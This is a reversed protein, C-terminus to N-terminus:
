RGQMEIAVDVTIKGAYKFNLELPFREGKKPLYKPNFIM